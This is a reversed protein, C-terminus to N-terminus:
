KLRCGCSITSAVTRRAGHAAWIAWRTVWYLRLIEDGMAWRGGFVGFLHGLMVAFDGQKGCVIHGYIMSKSDDGQPHLAFHLRRTAHPAIIGAFPHGLM